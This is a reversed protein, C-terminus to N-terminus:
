PGRPRVGRRAWPGRMGGIGKGGWADEKRGMDLASGEGGGGWSSRWEGGPLLNAGRM